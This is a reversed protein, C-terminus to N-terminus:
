EEAERPSNGWQIWPLSFLSGSIHDDAWLVKRWDLVHGCSLGSCENSHCSTTQEASVCPGAGAMHTWGLHEQGGAAEVSCRGSQAAVQKTLTGLTTWM